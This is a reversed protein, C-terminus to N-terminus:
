GRVTYLFLRHDLTGSWATEVRDPAWDGVPFQHSVV